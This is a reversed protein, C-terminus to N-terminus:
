HPYERLSRRGDAQESAEACRGCRTLSGTWGRARLARAVQSAVLCPRVRLDASGYRMTADGYAVHENDRRMDRFTTRAHHRGDLEVTLRYTGYRVDDRWAGVVRTQRQGAPLGHAREVDRRYVWELTSEIGEIDRAVAM